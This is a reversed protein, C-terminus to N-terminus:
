TQSYFQSSKKFWHAHTAHMHATLNKEWPRRFRHLFGFRHRPSEVHSRVNKNKCGIAARTPHHYPLVSLRGLLSLPSCLTLAGASTHYQYLRSRVWSDNSFIRRPTHSVFLSLLPKCISIANKPVSNGEADYWQAVAWRVCCRIAANLPLLLAM